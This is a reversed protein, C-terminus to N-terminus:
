DELVCIALCEKAPSKKEYKKLIEVLKYCINKSGVIQFPDDFIHFKDSASSVNANDTRKSKLFEKDEESFNWGCRKELDNISVNGFMIGM